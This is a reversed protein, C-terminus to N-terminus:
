NSNLKSHRCLSCLSYFMEGMRFKICRIFYKYFIIYAESCNHLWSDIIKLICKFGPQFTLLLEVLSYLLHEHFMTPLGFLNLIFISLCMLLSQLSCWLIIISTSPPPIILLFLFCAVAQSVYRMFSHHGFRVLNQPTKKLFWCCCFSGVSFHVPRFLFRVLAPICIALLTCVFVSLM